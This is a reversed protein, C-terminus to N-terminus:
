IYQEAHRGLRKRGEEALGVWTDVTVLPKLFFKAASDNVRACHRDLDPTVGEFARAGDFVTSGLWAAHTRPGMIPANGDHWHGELFTWTQSYTVPKAIHAMTAM